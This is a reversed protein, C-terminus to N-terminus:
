WDVPVAARSGGVLRVTVLGSWAPEAALLMEHARLANAVERNGQEDAPGVLVFVRGRRRRYMESLVPSLWKCRDRAAIVAVDVRGFDNLVQALAIVCEGDSTSAARVVVARGGATRIQGALHEIRERNDDHTLVVCAGERAMAIAMRGAAPNSAADTFLAVKGRGAPACKM